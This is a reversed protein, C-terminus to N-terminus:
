PGREGISHEEEVVLHGGVLGQLSAKYALDDNPLAKLLVELLHEKPLPTQYFPREWLSHGTSLPQHPTLLHPGGQSGGAPPLAFEQSRDKSALLTLLRQHPEEPSFASSVLYSRQVRKKQKSM